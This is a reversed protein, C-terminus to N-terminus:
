GQQSTHRAHVMALAQILLGAEPTSLPCEAGIAPIVGRDYCTLAIGRAHFRDRLHSPTWKRIAASTAQLLVSASQFERDPLLPIWGTM